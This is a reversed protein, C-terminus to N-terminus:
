QWLLSLRQPGRIKALCPGPDFERRRKLPSGNNLQRLLATPVFPLGGLGLPGLMPSRRSSAMSRILHLQALGRRITIRHNRLRMAFRDPNASPRPHAALRASRNSRCPLAAVAAAAEVLRLFARLFGGSFRATSPGTAISARACRHAASAIAIIM